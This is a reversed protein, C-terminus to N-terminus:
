YGIGGTVYDLLKAIGSFALRFPNSTLSVPHAKAQTFAEEFSSYSENPSGCDVNNLLTRVYLSEPAWHTDDSLYRSIKWQGNQKILEASAMEGSGISNIWYTGDNELIRRVWGLKSYHIIAHDGSADMEVYRIHFYPIDYDVTYDVETKSQQLANLHGEKLSSNLICEEAFYYDVRSNFDQTLTSLTEELVSTTLGDPSPFQGTSQMARYSGILTEELEKELPSQYQVVVILCLITAVAFIWRAIRKTRKHSDRKM